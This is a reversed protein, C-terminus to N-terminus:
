VEDILRFVRRNHYNNNYEKDDDIAAKLKEKYEAIKLNAYEQMATLVGEVQPKPISANERLFYEATKEGSM